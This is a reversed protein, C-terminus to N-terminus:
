KEDPTMGMQDLLKRATETNRLHEDVSEDDDEGDEDSLFSSHSYLSSNGTANSGVQNLDYGEGPRDYDDEDRVNDITCQGTCNFKKLISNWRLRRKPVQHSPPSITSCDEEKGADEGDLTEDNDDDDYDDDDDDDDDDDKDSGSCDRSVEEMWSMNAVPTVDTETSASTTKSDISFPSDTLQSVISSRNPSDVLSSDATTDLLEQQKKLISGPLHVEVAGDLNVKVKNQDATSEIVPQTEIAAEVYDKRRRFFPM